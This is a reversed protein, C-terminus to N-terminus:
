RNPRFTAMVTVLLHLSLLLFVPLAVATQTPVWTELSDQEVCFERVFRVQNLKLVLAESAAFRTLASQVLSNIQESKNVRKTKL